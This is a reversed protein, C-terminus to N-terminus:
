CKTCNGGWSFVRNSYPCTNQLFSGKRIVAAFNNVYLSPFIFYGYYIVFNIFNTSIAFSVPKVPSFIISKKLFLSSTQFKKKNFPFQILSKYVHPKSLDFIRSPTLILYCNGFLFFSPLWLETNEKRKIKYRKITNFFRIWSTQYLCVPYESNRILAHM